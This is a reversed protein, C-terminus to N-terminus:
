VLIIDELEIGIKRLNESTLRPDHYKHEGTSDNSFSIINDNVEGRTADLVEWGAPMPGARPDLQTREGEPGCFETTFYGERILIECSWGSPLAGLLGQGLQLGPIFCGGGIRYHGGADGPTTRIIMPLPCGLAVCVHDGARTSEPCIGIYGKGTRFLARGVLFSQMGRAFESSAEDNDKDRMMSRKYESMLDEVRLNEGKFFMKRVHGAAVASVFAEILSGGTIYEATYASPPEWQRCVERTGHFTVDLPMPVSVHSITDIFRGRLTLTGENKDSSWEPQSQAAAESLVTWPRFKLPDSFNPVWSPLQITSAEDSFGCLKLIELDQMGKIEALVANTFIEEIPRSYDPTIRSAVNPHLLSLVAYIRDRPESCNTHMAFISLGSLMQANILTTFPQLREITQLSFFEFLVSAARHEVWLLAGCFIDWSIEKSGVAVITNLSLGIEQLVWLRTFWPRELLMNIAVWSSRSAEILEGSVDLSKLDSGSRIRCRFSLGEREYELDNGVKYLTSIALTSDRSEEGLWVVVRRANRYIEGMKGVEKSKEAEDDQDICIADIWLIRIDDQQRLRKLAIYLNMGIALVSGEDQTLSIQELNSTAQTISDPRPNKEPMEVSFDPVVRIDYTIDSTGWVYSLAEYEPEEDVVLHVIEISIEDDGVGPLLKVVRIEDPDSGLPAHTYPKRLATM